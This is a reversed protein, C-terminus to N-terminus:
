PHAVFCHRDTRRFLRRRPRPNNCPSIDSVTAAGAIFLSTLGGYLLRAMVDRGQNDAGLFYNGLEWTPGIPNYGLGLGETSQEMVPVRNGDITITADLTSPLSRRRGLRCLCTGAFVPRPHRCSFHVLAAMGARDRALRRMATAWPGRSVRRTSVVAEATLVSVDPKSCGPRRAGHLLYQSNFQFNGVRKSVFDLHKPTFLAAAAASDTVAKDIEAWMKNAGEPDTVGLALAAQMKADIDKDCFGAINISSDSGETFSSCGFLINLFDSAAPYDQYWQTVSM